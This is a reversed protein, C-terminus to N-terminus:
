FLSILEVTLIRSCVRYVRICYSYEGRDLHMDKNTVKIIDGKKFSLLTSERTIYDKIARVYVTGQPPFTYNIPWTHPMTVRKVERVITLIDVWNDQWQQNM